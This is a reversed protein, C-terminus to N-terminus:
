CKEEVASEARSALCTNFARRKRIADWCTAALGDSHDISRSRFLGSIGDIWFAAVASGDAAAARAATAFRRGHGIVQM